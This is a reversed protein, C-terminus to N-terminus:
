RGKAIGADRLMEEFRPHQVYWTFAHEKRPPRMPYAQMIPYRERKLETGVTEDLGLRTPNFSGGLGVFKNLVPDKANVTYRFSKVQEGLPRLMDGRCYVGGSTPQVRADCFDVRDIAPAALLIHIRNRQQALPPPSMLSHYREGWSRALANTERLFGPDYIPNGLASLIVSSGRSHGILYIDKNSFQRLINRLARSGVLQSNGTAYFWIRGGGIGSGTLGDWYFRIIQDTPGTNLRQEILQYAKDAEAATNNYGHVLIFIRGGAEGLQAIERLQRDEDVEILRRLPSGRTSGNLLSKGQRIRRSEPHSRWGSPYLTGNADAFVHVENSALCNEQSSPACDAPAPRIFSETTPYSNTWCGGLLLLSAPWFTRIRRGIVNGEM